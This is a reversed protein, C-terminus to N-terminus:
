VCRLVGEVNKGVWMWHRGHSPYNTLEIAIHRLWVLLVMTREDADDGQLSMDLSNLVAREHPTWGAGGIWARVIDGLLCGQVMARTSLLFFVLDHLPLEDSTAFEWDVIGTLTNGDPTILINGPWFDGHIWSVALTRGELADHLQTGLLGIKAEFRAFWPTTRNLHQIQLLREDVWRELVGSDVVVSAATRQHLKGIMGAAAIQMGVIEKTDSMLSRGDNGPLKSEVAYRHGQIEGESLRKPIVSCWDGLRQDARIRALLEGERRLREAQESNKSIRLVAEAPCEAPGLMHVRGINEPRTAGQIIWDSPPSANAPPSITPLIEPVLERATALQDGRGWRRAVGRLRVELRRLPQLEARPAWITRTTTLLLIVAVISHSLLWAVGVGTIGYRGMLLWSFLLILLSLSTQVLVIAAMRRQVRAISLFLLTVMNPLAALCLLRLLTTGEDAYSNGFLRLIYPAGFVLIAVTPVLIRATQVFVKYSYEYLKTQDRAGETILSMGMNQTVLSLSYAITLSLYFYANASPGALQLVIIPLLTTSATRALSGVYDGGAYKSIQSRTPMEQEETPSAYRPILRAFLLVNTLVLLLVLPMTWSAFVAFQPFLSILSVLLGIKALAFILNEVPVWAAQRLGTLAGDQLVFICWAMTSLTFALAFLPNSKLFGLESTWIDIGIIFILSAVLAVVTSILYSYLIIRGSAPGATPIFRNLVNALSLQSLKALFMMAAILAANLGIAETSYSHAAIIWFLMGLGSTIGSSIVLAYGNRFLPERLHALLRRVFPKPISTLM